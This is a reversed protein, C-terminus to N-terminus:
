AREQSPSDSSQTLQDPIILSARHALSDRLVERLIDLATILREDSLSYQICAGHRITTVLNRERLIKLHRSTAPQSLMLVNALDNVTHPQESLAYLILIRTPDSLASCIDAHLQSAEQSSLSTNLIIVIIYICIRM